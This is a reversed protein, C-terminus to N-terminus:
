RGVKRTVASMAYRGDKGSTGKRVTRWQGDVYHQLKIAAHRAPLIRGRLTFTHGKTVTGHVFSATVYPRVLLTVASSANPEYTASGAYTTRYATSRAPLVGVGTDGQAGVSKTAVAAVSSSPVLPDAVYPAGYECVRSAACFIPGM